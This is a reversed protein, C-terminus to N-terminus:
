TNSNGEGLKKLKELIFDISINFYKDMDEKSFLVFEFEDRRKKSYMYKINKIYNVIKKIDERSYPIESIIKAKSAIDDILVKEDIDINFDDYIYRSYIELDRHKLAKITEKDCLKQTGDKLKIGIVNGKEDSIFYNGFVLNNWFYDTLLHIYYGMVVPNDKYKIYKKIFDDASPLPLKMNNISVKHAFHSVYYDVDVSLNDIVYRKADVMVNGFYFLNEDLKLFKNIKSATKLHIVWAPM